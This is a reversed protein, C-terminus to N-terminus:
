ATSVSTEEERRIRCRLGRLPQDGVFNALAPDNPTIANANAEWVGSLEPGPKRTPYWWYGDLNITNVEIGTTFRARQRISGEPREIIVWDGEEIGYRAATDPHLDVRPEPHIDRLRRAQRMTSGQFTMVRSGTIMQLPYAQEDDVDPVAYPPGTYTPLPDIGFETLLSPILEVKGSKTAFGHQEYKKFHRQPIFWNQESESWEKFSKGSPALFRDFMDEVDEPWDSPDLLRRGLAAWLEYDDHRDHLPKVAQQGVSFARTFGWSMGVEPRELFGAAPLIYDALQATPTQWLDMVVLLELEDSTLAEYALKAGGYNVLPEGNQVIVARIPYPDHNLVARYVAPPNTFLLYQAVFPGEPHVAKMAERFAAYGAVSSIPIDGASVNDRTRAPHNILSPFGINDMYDILEFPEDDLAEGGLLDLNGTIARLISQALLASRAAGQGIQSTSVGFTLRAPRNTAYMRAAEVVLEPPVGTIESTREPTWEAAVARVEDFGLCWKEVFERDYLEEEILVRIMGLALAGDTRPRLALHLDAIEAAKTRRPDVVILKVDGATVANRLRPWGMPNSESYNAGWMVLCKSVGPIFTSTVTDWGYMATETIVSGAGCNRGQNIFNPTGWQTLFRWTAWDRWHMSGGLTALAEPGERERIDRLKAAIEDMAQDWGIREWHGDGRRGARKLVYDVRDPHEHLELTATAKVCLMGENGPNHQDGIFRVPRGDDVEVLMGCHAACLGCLTRKVNGGFTLRTKRREEVDVM